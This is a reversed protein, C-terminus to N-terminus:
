LHPALYLQYVESNGTGWHQIHGKHPITCNTIMTNIKPPKFKKPCFHNDNNKTDYGNDNFKIQFMFSTLLSLFFVSLKEVLEYKTKNKRIVLGIHIKESTLLHQM